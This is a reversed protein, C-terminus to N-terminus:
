SYFTIVARLALSMYVAAITFALAPEARRYTRSLVSARGRSRRMAAQAARRIREGRLDDVDHTPISGILDRLVRVDDNDNDNDNANM